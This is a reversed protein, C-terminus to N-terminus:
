LREGTHEDYTESAYDDAARLWDEPIEFCVPHNQKGRLYFRFEDDDSGIQMVYRDCEWGKRTYRRLVTVYIRESQMQQVRIPLKDYGKPPKVHSLAKRFERRLIDNLTRVFRQKRNM